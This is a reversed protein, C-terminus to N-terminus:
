AITEFQDIEISKSSFDYLACLSNNTQM